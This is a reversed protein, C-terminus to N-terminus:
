KLEVFTFVWKVPNQWEGSFTGVPAKILVTNWGKQLYVKAPERYEYGEDTLPIELDGKLGAHKWNPPPILNGNVWVKSSKYDWEGKPPSNTANARGINNFGIWFKKEGAENSWIKRIAYYTSSDQQNELHSGILPAWFHRLWITGGFVSPYNKLEVTDVFSAAEPEFVSETKGNNAFPGILKWEIDSQRVYPFSHNKFYLSGHELLRNEFEVFANYRENGPSGVDSLYNKWGGGQWCRETFSLMVPYVANMNILDEEKEVRRDPWNCLIAGLKDKSGVPVDCVQHNFTAVVGDIPDFHNLYLHRSDIAPYNDKPNAKGIWMQLLTGEPVNGGPDWAVVKKKHSKLLAIMQPLFEKNTIEVEDGGIHVYPVDFERCFETLINKCIAVGKESQMDVGMARKFAASHGPMDIEPLFTIHRERCYYILEKIEDISYFKGANRKMNKASTLQPYRRSQIRWAIDETAHFHFYNLKYAAMVDIQQKLQKVSQFNRGVDVMYGRIPFAPWDAIECGAIRKEGNSLQLLTQIGNFIGHHTNATILVKETEARLEYAESNDSIALQKVLKLEIKPAKGAVSKIVAVTMGKKQLAQQLYTAEKKLIGDALITKCDTLSFFYENWKIQQPLPILSPRAKSNSTQSQIVNNALLLLLISIFYKM